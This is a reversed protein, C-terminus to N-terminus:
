KGGMQREWFQLRGGGVINRKIKSEKCKAPAQSLGELNRCERIERMKM